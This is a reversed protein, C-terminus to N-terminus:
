TEPSACMSALVDGRRLLEREDDSQQNGIDVKWREVTEAIIRPFRKSIFLEDEVGDIIFNLLEIIKPVRESRCHITEIHEIRERAEKIFKRRRERRTSM